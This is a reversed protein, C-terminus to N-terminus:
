SPTSTTQSPPPAKSPGTAERAATISPTHILSWPLDKKYYYRSTFHSVYMNPTMKHISDGLCVIREYTWHRHYSEELVTLTTATRRTWVADLDVTESVRRNLFPKVFEAQDAEQNYYRPMNPPQYKKDLKEFVFWYVRSDKGVVVLFSWDKNFTRYQEKDQLGPVPSSMGFLCRYESFM